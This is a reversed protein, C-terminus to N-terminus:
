GGGDLYRQNFNGAMPFHSGFKAWITVTGL